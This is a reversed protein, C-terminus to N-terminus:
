GEPEIPLIDDVDVSLSTALRRWNRSNTDRRATEIGSITMKSLGVTRGLAEQSLGRYERWVRLPAEGAVIREILATPVYEEGQQARVEAAIAARIDASDEAADQLQAYDDAPLIAMRQGAIELFQVTM